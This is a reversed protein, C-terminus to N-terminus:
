RRKEERVREKQESIDAFINKVARPAYWVGRVILFPLTDTVSPTPIQNLIDDINVSSKNKKQLKRLKSGFISEQLSNQAQNLIKPRFPKHHSM